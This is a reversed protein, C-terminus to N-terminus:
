GGQRWLSGSFVAHSSSSGLSIISSFPPCILSPRVKCYACCLLACAGIKGQKEELACNADPQGVSSVRMANAGSVVGWHPPTVGGATYNGLYIDCDDPAAPLVIGGDPGATDDANATPAWDYWPPVFEKAIPTGFGSTFTLAPLGEYGDHCGDAPLCPVTTENHCGGYGGKSCNGFFACLGFATPTVDVPNGAKDVSGEVGEFRPGSIQAWNTSHTMALLLTLM